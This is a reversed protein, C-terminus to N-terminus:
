KIPNVWWFIPNIAISHHPHDHSIIPAEPLSCLMAISCWYKSINLHTSWRAVQNMAEMAIHYIYQTPSHHHYNNHSLIPSYYSLQSSKAYGVIAIIAESGNYEFYTHYVYWLNLATQQILTGGLRTRICACGYLELIGFSETAFLWSYRTEFFCANVVSEESNSDCSSISYWSFVQWCAVTWGCFFRWASGLRRVGVLIGASHGWVMYPVGDTLKEYAVGQSHVLLSSLHSWEVRQLFPLPCLKRNFSVMFFRDVSIM